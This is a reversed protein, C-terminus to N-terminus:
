KAHGTTSTVSEDVDVEATKKIGEPTMEFARSFLLPDSLRDVCASHRFRAGVRAICNTACAHRYGRDGALWGVVAYAAAVRFVNRRKLEDSYRSM